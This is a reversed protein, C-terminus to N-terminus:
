CNSSHSSFNDCCVTILSEERAEVAEIGGEFMREEKLVLNQLDEFHFERLQAEEFVLTIGSSGMSGGEAWEPKRAVFLDSGRTSAALLQRHTVTWVTDAFRGSLLSLAGTAEPWLPKFNVKLM